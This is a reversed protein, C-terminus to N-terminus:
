NLEQMVKMPKGDSIEWQYIDGYESTLDAKHIKNVTDIRNISNCLLFLFEHPMIYPIDIKTRKHEKEFDKRDKRQCQLNSEVHKLWLKFIKDSISMNVLRLAKHINKGPDAQPLYMNDSKNEKDEKDQLKQIYQEKQEPTLDTLQSSDKEYM